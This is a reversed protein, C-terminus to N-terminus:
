WNYERNKKSKNKEQIAKPKEPLKQVKIKNERGNYVYTIEGLAIDTIKGKAFNDGITYINTKGQYAIAAKKEGQEPIITSELRVMDEIKQRWQQELDQITKVILNQELPDKQVTFVFDKRDQISNEINRIESLLEQDLAIDSYQSKEPVEEVQNYLSVNKVGFAILLIVILAIIFDKLYKEEM